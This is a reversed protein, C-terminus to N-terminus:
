PTEYILAAVDVVSAGGDVPIIAGTLYSAADSLMFRAVGAVESAAAARRLPVNRTAIEYAEDLSIGKADAVTTLSAASMETRILGPCLLNARVGYKGYEVAISQLMLGLGAKSASYGSLLSSARLAALSAIGVISGRSDILAPMAARALRAAAILNTELMERWVDDGQAAFSGGRAIAANLVVADIRGFMELTSAVLRDAGGDATIDVALAEAGIDSAVSEIQARRRGCIVVDWGDQRLELATAAGIGTGGGTVIACRRAGSNRVRDADTM